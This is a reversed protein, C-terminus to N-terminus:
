RAELGERYEAAIRYCAAEQFRGYTTKAKWNIGLEHHCTEHRLTKLLFLRDDGIEDLYIVASRDPMGECLEQANGPVARFSADCAVGYIGPPGDERFAVRVGDTGPFAPAGLVALLFALPILHSM